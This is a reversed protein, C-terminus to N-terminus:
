KIGSNIEVERASSRCDRLAAPLKQSNRNLTSHTGTCKDAFQKAKNQKYEDNNVTFPLLCIYVAVVSM